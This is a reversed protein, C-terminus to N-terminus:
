VMFAAIHALKSADDKHFCTGEGRMRKSPKKPVFLDGSKSGEVVLQLNNLATRADGDVINALYELADEGIAGDRIRM